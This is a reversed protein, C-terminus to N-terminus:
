GCPDPMKGDVPFWNGGIYSGVDEGQENVICCIGKRAAGNISKNHALQCARRLTYSPSGYVPTFTASPKEYYIGYKM